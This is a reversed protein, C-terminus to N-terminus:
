LKFGNTFGNRKAHKLLYNKLLETGEKVLRQNRFKEIITFDLSRANGDTYGCFIQLPVHNQLIDETQLGTM